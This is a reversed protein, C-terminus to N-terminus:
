DRELSNDSYHRYALGTKKNVVFYWDAGVDVWNLDFMKFEHYADNKPLETGDSLKWNYNPHLKYAMAKAKSVTMGSNSKAAKIKDAAKKDAVKKAALKADAIKKDNAIKDAIKKDNAIKLDDAIKKDNAIIDDAIKQEAVKKVQAEKALLINNEVIQKQVKSVGRNYAVTTLTASIILVATISLIILGTKKIM